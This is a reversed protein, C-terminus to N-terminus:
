KWKTPCLHLSVYLSVIEYPLPMVLVFPGSNQPKDTAALHKKNTLAEKM